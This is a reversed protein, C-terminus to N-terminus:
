HRHRLRPRLQDTVLATVTGFITHMMMRRGIMTPKEDWPGETIGLGPGIEALDVAHSALGLLPGIPSLV